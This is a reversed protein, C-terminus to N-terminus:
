RYHLVLLSPREGMTIVFLYDYDGEGIPVPTDVGLGRIIAPVTTSHGVVLANTRAQRLSSVLGFTDDARGAIVSLRLREALPAATQKTRKYETVYITTINADSLATALAAARAHGAASLDPDAAMTPMGGSGTDAREAHRVVFIVPEAAAPRPASGGLVLIALIAGCV